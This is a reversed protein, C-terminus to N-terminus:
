SFIKQKVRLKIHAEFNFTSTSFKCCKEEKELYNELDLLIQLVGFPREPNHCVWKDM